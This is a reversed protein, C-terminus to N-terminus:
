GLTNLKDRFKPRHVLLYNDVVPNMPISLALFLVFFHFQPGHVLWSVFLHYSRRSVQKKLKFVGLIRTSRFFPFPNNTSHFSSHTPSQGREWSQWLQWETWRHSEHRSNPYVKGWLSDGLSTSSLPIIQIYISIQSDYLFHAFSREGIGPDCTSIKTLHTGFWVREFDYGIRPV